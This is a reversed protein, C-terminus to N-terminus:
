RTFDGGVGDPKTFDNGLGGFSIHSLRSVPVDAVLYSKMLYDLKENGGLIDPRMFSDTKKFVTQVMQDGSITLNLEQNQKEIVESLTFDIYM